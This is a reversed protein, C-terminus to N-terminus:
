AFAKLADRVTQLLGELDPKTAPNNDTAAHIFESVAGVIKLVAQLKKVVKWRREFRILVLLIAM